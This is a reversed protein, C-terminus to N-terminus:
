LDVDMATASRSPPLTKMWGREDITKRDRNMTQKRMMEVTRLNRSRNSKRTIQIVAQMPERRGRGANAKRSNGIFGGGAFANTFQPCRM